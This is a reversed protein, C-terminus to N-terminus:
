GPVRVPTSVGHFTTVVRQEWLTRLSARTHMASQLLIQYYEQAFWWQGAAEAGQIRERLTPARRSVSM